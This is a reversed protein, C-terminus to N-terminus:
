QSGNWKSSTDWKYHNNQNSDEGRAGVVITDGSISVSQGFYDFLSQIQLKLTLKMQGLLEMEELFM